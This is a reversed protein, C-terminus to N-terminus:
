VFLILRASFTSDTTEIDMQGQYQAVVRRVNKLGIGHSRGRGKTTLFAKGAKKLEGRHSNEMGIFFTGHEEKLSIKLHKQGEECQGLARLANDLLNGMLISFDKLNMSLETPIQIDTVIDVGMEAAQGLKINLLGDVVANGTAAFRHKSELDTFLDSLYAEAEQYQQHGILQQLSLLHNKMDHRLATIKRESEKSLAMQNEYAQNQQELLALDMQKKHMEQIRDMLYFVSIDILIMITGGIAILLQDHCQELVFISVFLSCAPILIVFLWEIFPIEEGSKINAAKELVLVIFFFLLDTPLFGILIVYEMGLGVLLYYMLDECVIYLAVSVITAVARYKWTGIYTGAVLLCGVVNSLMIVNPSLVWVLFCMSNGVYYVVYCVYRAIKRNRSAAADFFVRFLMGIIYLRFLNGILYVSSAVAGLEEIM